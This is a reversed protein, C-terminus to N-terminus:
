IRNIGLRKARVSTVSVLISISRVEENNIIRLEYYTSSRIEHVTAAQLIIGSLLSEDEYIRHVCANRRIRKVNFRFINSGEIANIIEFDRQRRIRGIKQIFM